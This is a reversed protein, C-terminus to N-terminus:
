VLFVTRFIETSKLPKMGDIHIMYYDMLRNFLTRRMENDISLSVIDEPSGKLLVRVLATKEEDLFHPHVPQFNTLIGEKLDLFRGNRDFEPAIGLKPALGLIFLLPTNPNPKQDNELKLIHDKVFSFLGPNPTTERVCKKVLEAMFQAIAIKKLQEHTSMLPHSSRIEKLRHLETNEKYYIVADVLSAPQFLNAHMTSKSKRVGGAIISIMGKDPTLFNSIVSTERYKITKIVIAETKLLM